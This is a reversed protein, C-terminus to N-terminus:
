LGVGEGMGVEFRQPVPSLKMRADVVYRFEAGRQVIRVKVSVTEPELRIQQEAAFARQQPTGARGLTKVQQPIGAGYGRIHAFGGTRSILRRICRKKWGIIGSDLALDGTADARFTGLMLPSATTADPLGVLASLTQPNAIDRMGIAQDPVLPVRGAQIGFFVASTYLPDLALGASSRVDAVAILYQCFFPSFARDVVLDIQKGGSGAELARLAQIVRVPRTPEGDGAVGPIPTISYQRANAADGPDLVGSYKMVESFTLRVVNERRAVASLLRPINLGSGWPSFGWGGSGWGGSM